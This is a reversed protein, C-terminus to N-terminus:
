MARSVKLDRPTKFGRTCLTCTHPRADSHRKMHMRLNNRTNSVKDCHPCTFLEGQHCKKHIRLIKENKLWIGCQTCRVRDQVEHTTLHYALAGKIPFSKACVHCVFPRENQHVHRQHGDLTSAYGFRKGCIDCVYSLREEDPLHTREHKTMAHKAGFGKNCYQCRYPREGEPLHLNMHNALGYKSSFQKSCHPCCFPDLDSKPFHQKQHNKWLSKNTFEEQCEPCKYTHKHDLIHEMLEDREWMTQGCCLVCGRTQHQVRCHQDLLKFNCFTQKNACKDCEFKYFGSLQIDLQEETNKVLEYSNSSEEVPPTETCFESDDENLESAESESEESFVSTRKDDLEHEPFQKLNNSDAIQVQRSVVNFRNSSIGSHKNDSSNVCLNQKNNPKSFLMVCSKNCHTNKLRSDSWLDGDVSTECNVYLNPDVEVKIEVSGSRTMNLHQFTQETTQNCAFNTSIDSLDYYKVSRHDGTCNHSSLEADDGKKPNLIPVSTKNTEHVTQSSFSIDVISSDHQWYESSILSMSLDTDSLVNNIEQVCGLVNHGGTVFDNKRSGAGSSEKRINNRLPLFNDDYWESESRLEVFASCAAAGCSSTIMIVKM